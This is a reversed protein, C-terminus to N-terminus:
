PGVEPPCSMDVCRNQVVDYLRELGHTEDTMFDHSIGLAHVFDDPEYPGGVGPASRNVESMVDLITELPTNEDADLVVMNQLIRVLVRDTDLGQVTQVLDLADNAV